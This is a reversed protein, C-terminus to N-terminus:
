QEDEAASPLELQVSSQGGPGLTVTTAQSLYNQMVEPNRFELSESNRVAVVEYTGPPVNPAVFQGTDGARVLRSRNPYDMSYIVVGAAAPKGDQAVTGSLLAGDDRLTVVIAPLSGSAGVTLDNQLLDVTGCSLDAIYFPGFPRAEVTYTGPFLGQVAAPSPQGRFRPAVAGQSFQPSLRSSMRVGVRHVGGSDGNTTEDDIRILISIGPGLALIVGSVDSTVSIPLYASLQRRSSVEGFPNWARATLVYKGAAVGFIQFRGTSPDFRVQNEAADGDSDIVGVSVGRAGNAGVVVGAIEFTPQKALTQDARFQTGPTIVIPTASAFDAVGAYFREGYGQSHRKGRSLRDYVRWSGFPAFSLFYTGPLLEAMRFNGLDDTRTVRVRQLQKLGGQIAWREAAVLIREMPQGNGDTVRGFVIGEPTLKVVFATQAPVSAMDRPSWTGTEQQNFFGPKRAIVSFQGRPLGAFDFAGDSGSFQAMRNPGYTEVLAGGIPEGTASNVVEGRLDYTPAPQQGRSPAACALAILIASSLALVPLGPQM